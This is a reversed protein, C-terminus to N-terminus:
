SFIFFKCNSYYLCDYHLPAKEFQMKNSLPCPPCGTNPSPNRADKLNHGGAMGADGGRAAAALFRTLLLINYSLMIAATLATLSAECLKM